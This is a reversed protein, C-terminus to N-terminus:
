RRPPPRGPRFPHHDPLLFPAPVHRKGPEHFDGHHVPLRGARWLALAALAGLGHARWEVRVGEPLSSGAGGGAELALELLALLAALGLWPRLTPRDHALALGSLVAAFWALASLGRYAGLDPALVVLGLAVLPACLALARLMAPTGLHREAVLGAALFAGADLAAHGASFHVLHGTWLRWLEGAALAPRDYELGAIWSAPAFALALGAAALGASARPM